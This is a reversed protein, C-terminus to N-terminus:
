DFCLVTAMAIDWRRLTTMGVASAGTMRTPRSMCGARCVDLFQRLGWMYPKLAWLHGPGHFGMGDRDSCSTRGQERRRDLQLSCHGCLTLDGHRHRYDVKASGSVLYLKEGIKEGARCPKGLTTSIARSNLFRPQMLRPRNQIVDEMGLHSVM